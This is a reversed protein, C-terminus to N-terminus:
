KTVYPVRCRGCVLEGGIPTTSVFAQNCRVCYAVHTHPLPHAYPVPPYRNLSSLDAPMQVRYGSLM